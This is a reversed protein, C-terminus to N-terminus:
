LTPERSHAASDGALVTIMMSKLETENTVM